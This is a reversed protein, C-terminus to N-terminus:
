GGFSERHFLRTSLERPSEGRQRPMLRGRKDSSEGFDCAGGIRTEGSSFPLVARNQLVRPNRAALEDAVAGTGDPSNDDIVLVDSAPM